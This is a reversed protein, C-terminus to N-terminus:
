LRGTSIYREWSRDEAQLDYGAGSEEWRLERRKDSEVELAEYFADIKAHWLAKPTADFYEGCANILTKVEADSYEMFVDESWLTYAAVRRKFQYPTM